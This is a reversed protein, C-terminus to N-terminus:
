PKGGRWYPIICPDEGQWWPTQRETVNETRNDFIWVLPAGQVRITETPTHHLLYEYSYFFRYFFSQRNLFIVFDSEDYGYKNLNALLDPRLYRGAVDAAMVIHIKADAPARENVWAVAEKQSTGWYDLDYRGYAGKTGGVLENFYTIQYPHFAVINWILLGLAGVLLIRFIVRKKVFTEVGIAALAAMPVLVEEFHRIGDIVGIKPFLYRTLPIFFWLVFLWLTKDPKRFTRALGVLFLFLIPLPTTIALYWFPYYWPVNKGSCYWAGNLLVEINNTGVGFTLYAHKLQGIPDPWFVWWLLFALLPAMFFYPLFIKISKKSVQSLFLWLAFVIPIFMSNIKVNFAIAFAFAALILDVVRKYTVARWLLWINLAFVVASPIDKMNNHLDGFFRPTLALFLSAMLAVRKSVAEKLFLYLIGMGAVGWLIIPLNYAADQPLWGLTKYFLLYSAVPPISMLPGYPLSWALRPDPEVYPLARAELQQWEYGLLKGGGFLHFHFDWTFAYDNITALHILLFVAIILLGFHKKM